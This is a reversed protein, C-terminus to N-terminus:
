RTRKKIDRKKLNALPFGIWINTPVDEFGLRGAVFLEFASSQIEMLPIEVTNGSIFLTNKISQFRIDELREKKFIMSGAKIMPEFGAVEADELNFTINGKLSDSLLGSLDDIQGEIETDLTVLGGIKKASKIADIGFYDFAQLLKELDIKDTRLAM